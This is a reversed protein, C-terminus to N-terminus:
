FGRYGRGGERLGDGGMNKEAGFQRITNGRMVSAGNGLKEDAADFSYKSSAQSNSRGLSQASSSNQMFGRFTRPDNWEELHGETVPEFRENFGKSPQVKLKRFISFAIFALIVVGGVTGGVILITKTNVGSSSQNDQQAQATTSTSPTTSTTSQSPTTIATITPFDTPVPTSSTTPTSTTAGVRAANPQTSSTTVAILTTSPVLSSTTAPTLSTSPTDLPTSSVVQETTAPTTPTTTLVAQTAPSTNISSDTVVLASTQQQPTTAKAGTTAAADGQAALNVAVPTDLSGTGLQPAPLANVGLGLLAAIFFPHPIYM